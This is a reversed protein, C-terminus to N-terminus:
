GVAKAWNTALYNAADTAQTPTLFVPTGTVAPLKGAASTNISGNSTMAQQEV